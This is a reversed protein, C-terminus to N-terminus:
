KSEQKLWDLWCERCNTVSDNDCVDCMGPRTALTYFVDNIFEALEEDTMSRIRDANTQVTYHPCPADVCYEKYPFMKDRLCKGDAARFKCESM